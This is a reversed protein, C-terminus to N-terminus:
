RKCVLLTYHKGKYFSSFVEGKHWDCQTIPNVSRKFKVRSSRILESEALAREAVLYVAQKPDENSVIFGIYRDKKFVVRDGEIRASGYHRLTKNVLVKAGRDAEFSTQASVSSVGAIFATILMVVLAIFHVSIKNKM